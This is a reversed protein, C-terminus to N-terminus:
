ANKQSDSNDLSIKYYPKGDIIHDPKIWNGEDIAKQLHTGKVPAEGPKLKNIDSNVRVLDQELVDQIVGMAENLQQNTLQNLNGVCFQTKIAEEQETMVQDAHLDWNPHQGRHVLSDKAGGEIAKPSNPLNRLNGTQDINYGAKGRERLLQALKSKGTRIANISLKHHSQMDPPTNGKGYEDLLLQKRNANFQTPDSWEDRNSKAAPGSRLIREGNPGREVHFNDFGSDASKRSVVDNRKVSYIQRFQGQEEPSLADFDKGDFQQMGEPSLPQCEDTGKKKGNGGGKGNGATQPKTATAPKNQNEPSNPTVTQALTTTSETQDRVQKVLDRLAKPDNQPDNPNKLNYPKGTKQRYLEAAKQQQEPSLSALYAQTTGVEAQQYMAKKKADFTQTISKTTANHDDKIKQLGAEHERKQQAYKADDDANRSKRKVEADNREKEQAKLLDGAEKEQQARVDKINQIVDAATPQTSAPAPPKKSPTPAAPQKGISGPSVKGAATAADLASSPQAAPPMKPPLDASLVIGSVSQNAAQVEALARAKLTQEVQAFTKHNQDYAKQGEPSLQARDKAWDAWAANWVQLMQQANPPYSPDAVIAGTGTLLTHRTTANWQGNVSELFGGPMSLAADPLSSGFTTKADKIRKQQVRAGEIFADMGQGHEPPPAVSPSTNRPAQGPRGPSTGTGSNPAAKVPNGSGFTRPPGGRAIVIPEPKPQFQEVPTGVAPPQGEGQGSALEMPAPPAVNPVQQQPQPPVATSLSDTSPAAPATTDAKTEALRAKREREQAAALATMKYPVIRPNLAMADFTSMSSSADRDPQNAKQEQEKRAKEQAAELATMKYPVIRPHLAMADFTPVSSSANLVRRDVPKPQSLAAAPDKISHQKRPEVKQDPKPIHDAFEAM